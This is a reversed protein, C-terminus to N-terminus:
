GVVFQLYRRGTRDHDHRLLVRAPGHEGVRGAESEVGEGGTLVSL